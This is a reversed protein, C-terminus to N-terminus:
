SEVGAVQHTAAIERERQITKIRAIRHRLKRPISTNALQRTALQLRASFLERYTNDIEEILQQDSLARLEEIQQKSKRAM